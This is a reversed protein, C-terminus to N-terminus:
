GYRLREDAGVVVLGEKEAAWGEVIGCRVLKEADVLAESATGGLGCERQLLQINWGPSIVICSRCRQEAVTNARCM